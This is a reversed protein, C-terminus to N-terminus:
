PTNMWRLSVIKYVRGLAGPQRLTNANSPEQADEPYRQVLAECLASSEIQGDAYMVDGYARIKFTDSRAQMVPALATLIDAQTLYVSSGPM